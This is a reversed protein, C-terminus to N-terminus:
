YYRRLQQLQTNSNSNAVHRNRGYVMLIYICITMCLQWDARSYWAAAINAPIFYIMFMRAYSLEDPVKTLASKFFLLLFLVLGFVGTVAYMMAYGVDVLYMKDYEKLNEYFHGYSSDSHPVGNGIISTVINKSYEGFFYKYDTIRINEDTRNEEVEMETLLTLSGLISNDSLKINNGLTFFLIAVVGVAISLRKNKFYIYGVAVLASLVIIQRVVQMVIVVFLIAAIAIFYRKNTTYSKNVSLFFGLVIFAKGPFSLRIIGRSLNEEVLDEEGVGFVLNPVQSLAYLWMVCYAVCFFWIFNELTDITPRKKCLYFFFLFSFMPATSRYTLDLGQDWFFFASIISIFLSVLIWQMYRYLPHSNKARIQNFCVLMMVPQAVLCLLREITSNFGVYNYLQMCCLAYIFFPAYKYITSFNM